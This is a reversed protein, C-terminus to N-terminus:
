KYQTTILSFAPGVAINLRYRLGSYRDRPYGDKILRHYGGSTILRIQILIEKKGEYTNYVLLEPPSDVKPPDKFQASLDIKDLNQKINDLHGLKYPKGGDKTPNSTLSLIKMDEGKTVHIGLFRELNVLFTAEEPNTDILKTIQSAAEKMHEITDKFADTQRREKALKKDNEDTYKPTKKDDKFRISLNAKKWADMNSNKKITVGIDNWFTLQDRTKIKGTNKDTKLEAVGPSQGVTILSKLIGYKLSYKQQIPTIEPSEHKVVVDVKTASQSEGGIAKITVTDAIGNELINEANIKSSPARLEDNASALISVFAGQMKEITDNLHEKDFAQRHKVMNIVNEVTVTDAPQGTNTATYSLLKDSHKLHTIIALMQAENAQKPYHIFAAAVAAAFFTEALDGATLGSREFLFDHARMPKVWTLIM